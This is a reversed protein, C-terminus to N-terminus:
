SGVLTESNGTIKLSRNTATPHANTLSPVPISELAYAKPLAGSSYQLNPNDAVNSIAKGPPTFTLKREYLALM